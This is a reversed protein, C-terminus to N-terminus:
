EDLIKAYLSWWDGPHIVPPTWFGIVVGRWPAKLEEILNGYIDQMKCLVEGAEVIENPQKVPTQIGGNYSHIYYLEITMQEVRKPMEEDLMGMHIMVNRIGHYSIDIDRQRNHLRSCHSGVEPVICPIGLKHFSVQANGTFPLNSCAWNYKVNFAEALARNKAGLEDDTPLYGCLPELHLVDGGGHFTIAADAYPAVRELYTAALRQTIYTDLNGPYIRNLNMEDSLTSRRILMFAEINLAPVGVFTGSFDTHELEEALKIIAESGETEDGHTAGDVLLTPGPRTGKVLILPIEYHSGDAKQGYQIAGDTRRGGQRIVRDLVIERM